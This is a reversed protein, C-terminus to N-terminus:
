LYEKTRWSVAPTNDCFLCLTLHTVPVSSALVDKHAITAALELDSKHVDGDPSSVSVLSDQITKSLECRLIPSQLANDKPPHISNSVFPAPPLWVGGMGRRAADEAGFYSPNKPM